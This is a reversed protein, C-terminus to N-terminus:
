KDLIVERVMSVVVLHDWNGLKILVRHSERVLGVTSMTGEVFSVEYFCRLQCSPVVKMRIAIAEVGVSSSSRPMMM